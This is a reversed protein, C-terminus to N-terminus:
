SSGVVTRNKAPPASLTGGETLLQGGDVFFSDVGLELGGLLMELGDASGSFNALSDFTEWLFTRFTEERYMFDWGRVYYPCADNFCIYMYDNDWTCGFPNDPVSFIFASSM